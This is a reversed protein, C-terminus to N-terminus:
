INYKKEIYQKGWYLLVTAIPYLFYIWLPNEEISIFPLTFALVIALSRAFTFLLSISIVFHLIHIGYLESGQPKETPVKNHM